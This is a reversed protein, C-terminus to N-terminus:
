RLLSFCVSVTARLFRLVRSVRPDYLSRGALAELSALAPNGFLGSIL